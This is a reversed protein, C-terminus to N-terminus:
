DGFYFRSGGAIFAGRTYNINEETLAGGGGIEIFYTRSKTRLFEVGGFGKLQLYPGKKGQNLEYILGIFLGGYFRINYVPKSRGILGLFPSAIIFLDDQKDEEIIFQADLRIVLKDSIPLSFDLGFIFDDNYLGVPLGLGFGNGWNKSQFHPQANNLATIKERLKQVEIKLDNIENSYILNGGFLFIMLILFLFRLIKMKLRENKYYEFYQTFHALKQTNLLNIFFMSKRM